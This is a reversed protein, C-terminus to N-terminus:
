PTTRKGAGIDYHAIIRESSLPYDYVAVEDLESNLFGNSPGRTGVYLHGSVAGLPRDDADSGFLNGDVYLLLQTGNFVAVFHHFAGDASAVSDTSLALGDARRNHIADPTSAGIVAFYLGVANMPSGGDPLNDGMRVIYRPSGAVLDGPVKAWAELTYFGLSSFDFGDGCDLGASVFSAATDPDGAIAGPRELVPAGITLPTSKGTANGIRTGQKEGLPLYLLPHDLLVSTSYLRAGADNAGDARSADDGSADAKPVGGEDSPDVSSADADVVSGDPAGVSGGTLGSTDVLLGCGAM